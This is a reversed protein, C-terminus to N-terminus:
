RRKFRSNICEYVCLLLKYLNISVKICLLRRRNFSNYILNYNIKDKKHEKLLRKILNKNKKYKNFIISNHCIYMITLSIPINEYEPLIGSIYDEIYSEVYILNNIVEEDFKKSLSLDNNSYYYGNYNIFKMKKTHKLIEFMYLKDETNRIKKDFRINKYKKSLFLKGWVATSFDDVAFKKWCEESNLIKEDYKYNIKHISNDNTITCDCNVLDVDNSELAKIMIEIFKTDLYDDSDIFAYYMGCVNDLGINRTYSPGHNKHYFYKIRSDIKQFEKCIKESQDKSGDNILLIELNKYTQNLISVLCRELVNECNYIPVIISVLKEM